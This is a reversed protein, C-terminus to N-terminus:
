TYTTSAHNTTPLTLSQLSQSPQQTISTPLTATPGLSIKEMKIIARTTPYSTSKVKSAESIWKRITDAQKLISVAVTDLLYLKELDAM